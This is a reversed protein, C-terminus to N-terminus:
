QPGGSRAGASIDNPFLQQLIVRQVEAELRTWGAPLRDLGLGSAQIRAGPGVDLLSLRPPATLRALARVLERAYRGAGPAHTTAPWLDLGVRPRQEM